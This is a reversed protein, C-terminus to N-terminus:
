PSQKLINNRNAINNDLKKDTNQFNINKSQATSILQSKQKM